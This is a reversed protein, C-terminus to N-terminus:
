SVLISTEPNPLSKLHLPLAWTEALWIVQREYRRYGQGGAERDYTTNFSTNPHRPASPLLTCLSFRVLANALRMTQALIHDNTYSDRIFIGSPRSNTIEQGWNALKDVIREYRKEKLSTTARPTLGSLHRTVASLPKAERHLMIMWFVM